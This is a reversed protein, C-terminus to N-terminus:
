TFKTPVPLNKRKCEEEVVKMMESKAQDFKKAKLNKHFKENWVYFTTQLYGLAYDGLRVPDSIAMDQIKLLSLVNSPNRNEIM